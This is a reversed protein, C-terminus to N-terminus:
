RQENSIFVVYDEQNEKGGASARDNTQNTENLPGKLRRYALRWVNEECYCATRLKLESSCTRATEGASNDSDQSPNNKNATTQSVSKRREFLM